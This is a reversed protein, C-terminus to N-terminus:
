SAALEQTPEPTLAELADIVQKRSKNEKEYRLAEGVLGLQSALQAIGNAATEDYTPWPKAAAPKTHLWHDAPNQYVLLKKEVLAREDDTWEKKRGQELTDIFHGRINYYDAGAEGYQGDPDHIPAANMDGFDAVLEKETGIRIGHDYIPTESRVHLQYAAAVSQFVLGNPSPLTYETGDHVFKEPM